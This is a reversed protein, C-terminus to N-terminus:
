GLKLEPHEHSYVDLAINDKLENYSLWSDESPDYGQWRVRFQLNRKTTGTHDIISEVIFEDKDAAALQILESPQFDDPVKFLRLRDIHVQIDKNSILDNLKFMDDRIKDIIIM